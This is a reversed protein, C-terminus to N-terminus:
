NKEWGRLKRMKRRKSIFRRVIRISTCINGMLWYPEMRGNGMSGRRCLQRLFITNVVIENEIAAACAQKYDVNGQTFPENGAIFIVKFDDPEASWGLGQVAAQIVTGCYEDGGGIKLAFLEQSVKDLDTTLPLIMRLYNEEAPISSKGYEYLAVQLVPVEGNQRAMALENVIAWLQTKSQEILGGMSSSTDLLIAMQILPTKVEM